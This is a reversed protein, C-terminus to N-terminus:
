SITPPSVLTVELPLTELEILQDIKARVRVLEEYLPDSEPITAV